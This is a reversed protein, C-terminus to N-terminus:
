DTSELFPRLHERLADDCIYIYTGKIGRTLLVRYINVIWQLIDDDTYRIGLMNNNLIGKSDFYNERRFILKKSVPDFGLDKGIVVGAYNLDYGQITHISGVDLVSDESNVWDKDTRNWFLCLGDIHIDAASPDSKSVWKWAYGALVRALGVEKNKALIADRMKSFSDFHKFEYKGFQPQIKPDNSLLAQVFAVYDNGASVRLQSHLRYYLDNKKAESVIKNILERPLDAPKISQVPDLLLVQSDSQAEIWDLQTIQLDDSGFLKKNIDVYQTNLTPFAQNARMSLRHTEDVILLDWRESSNGVQFPKLIMKRSLGPTKGFVNELTRRLSQQPIVLGVKYNSLMEKNSRTMFEAFVSDDDVPNEVALNAIDKLLKMLYIAVITKGTGPDGDIIFRSKRGDRKSRLIQRVIKSVADAQEETLAKFPSYKFLNSNVLEPVPRSLTGRKVLEDFLAKFSETYSERQFYDANTIGANANLVKYKEDASFYQILQSELDLCASKNFKDSMVITARSLSEKNSSALHQTIRSRANITEGVYIENTNSLMYVIPWNDAFTLHNDSWSDLVKQSFAFDFLEYDTM